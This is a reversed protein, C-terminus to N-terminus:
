VDVLRQADQAIETAQAAKACQATAAPTASAAVRPDATSAMENSSRRSSLPRRTITAGSETAGTVATFRQYATPDFSSCGPFVPKACRNSCKMNWPERWTVFASCKESM